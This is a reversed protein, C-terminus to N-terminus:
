LGAGPEGASAAPPENLGAHPNREFRERPHLTTKPTALVAWGLCVAVVAGLVAPGVSFYLWSLVLGAVQLGCFVWGLSGIAEPSKQVLRSLHWALFASFAMYLSIDLGFGRYVGGYSFTAGGVQFHVRNMAELVAIAEASPPKFNLFGFTHGVAFLVFVMAAIRYLWKSM